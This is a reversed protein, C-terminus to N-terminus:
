DGNDGEIILPGQDINKFEDSDVLIQDCPSNTKKPTSFEDNLPKDLKNFICTLNKAGGRNSAGLGIGEM